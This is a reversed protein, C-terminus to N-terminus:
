RYVNSRLGDRMSMKSMRRRFRNRELLLLVLIIIWLVVAIVAIVPLSLSSVYAMPQESPNIKPKIFYSSYTAWGVLVGGIAAVICQCMASVWAWSIRIQQRSGLFVLLLSMALWALGIIDIVVGLNVFAVELSKVEWRDANTFIGSRMLEQVTQRSIGTVFAWVLYTIGSFAM